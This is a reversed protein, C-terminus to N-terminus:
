HPQYDIENDASGEGANIFISIDDEIGSIINRQLLTNIILNSNANGYGGVLNIGRVDSFFPKLLSLNVNLDNCYVRIGSLRNDSATFQPVLSWGGLLNIGIVPSTVENQVIWVDQIDNNESQEGGRVTIAGTIFEDGIFPMRQNIINITNQQIFIEAIHNESSPRDDGNDTTGSTLSIGSNGFGTRPFYGRISNGLLYVNEISNSRAGGLGAIVNIGKGGFGEILNSTIWIDRIMNREPHVVPEYGPDYYSTPADGSLVAIADYPVGDERVPKALRISNGTLWLNEVLNGNSGVFGAAILVAQGPNGEIENNTIQVNRISNGKRNEWFGSSLGIGVVHEDEELSLISIKNESIVLNDIQDGDSFHLLVNIGDSARITNGIIRTDQWTNDTEKSVGNGAREPGSNLTISGYSSEIVLHSLTNGSYVQNTAPADFLVAISFGVIRLAHVTNNSSHIRLGFIYDDPSPVAVDNELTVDPISDGDIDGNIILSGSDLAPFENHDWSGIKITTGKLSPDFRITYEGPDNRVAILAERLAIGDQGPNDLLADISSTNGNIADSNTEIVIVRGRQLVITSLLNDSPALEAYGEAGYVGCEVMPTVPFLTSPWLTATPVQETQVASPTPTITKTALGCGSLFVWCIWMLSILKRM